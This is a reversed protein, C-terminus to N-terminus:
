SRNHSTAYQSIALLYVKLYDEAMKQNSFRKQVQKRCTQANLHDVLDLKKQMQNLSSVLFGTTGNDILEPMSGRPNVIVPTGCSMAETVVLGFPEEWNLWLLLAKAGKLLEVKRRHGVEGVFTIQKGDILPKIKEEFYPRDIIDVKAAIVLRHSTKQIMTCIELLGKEPSTRGLFVFYDQKKEEFPFIDLDIGNYVTSVWNLSPMAKRQNNSISIHNEDKYKKFTRKEPISALPGHHTTVMPLPISHRFQLLRWSLHNHVIDPKLEKLKELITAAQEFKYYQRLGQPTPKSNESRIAKAAIPILRAQTHSDGSALLSVQHGMNTLTNAINAVVLETGGYKQPPVSEEIPAVLAIKM